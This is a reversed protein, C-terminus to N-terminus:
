SAELHEQRPRIAPIDDNRAPTEPPRTRSRGILADESWPGAGAFVFYLFLFCYLVVNDGMNNIPFLSRLIHVKFYAVAMEGSALFAAGRTVLGILILFGCVTEILGAFGPSLTFLDYPVPGRASPPVNFVKQLGHEFYLLGAVIRLVSLMRSTWPSSSANFVSVVAELGSLNRRKDSSSPRGTPM